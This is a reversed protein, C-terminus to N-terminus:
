SGNNGSRTHGETAGQAAPVCHSCYMKGDVEVMDERAMKMGCKDCTFMEGSPEATIAQAACGACLMKGGVMKIDAKAIQQGCDVCDVTAQAQESSCGALGSALALLGLGVRLCVQIRTM